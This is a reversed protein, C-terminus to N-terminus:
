LCPLYFGNFFLTIPITPITMISAINIAAQAGPVVVVAGVVLPVVIVVAAVVAAGAVVAFGASSLGFYPPM